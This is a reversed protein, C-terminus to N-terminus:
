VVATNGRPGIPLVPRKAPPPALTPPSIRQGKVTAPRCLLWPIPWHVVCMKENLTNKNVRDLWNWNPHNHHWERRTWWTSGSFPIESRKGRNRLILSSLFGSSAVVPECTLHLVRLLLQCLHFFWRGQLDECHFHSWVATVHVCSFIWWDIAIVRCPASITKFAFTMHMIYLVPFSTTQAKMCVHATSSHCKLTTNRKFTLRFSMPTTWPM